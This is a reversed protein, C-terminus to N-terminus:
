KHGLSIRIPIAEIHGIVAIRFKTEWAAGDGADRLIHQAGAIAEIHQVINDCGSKEFGARFQGIGDCGESPVLHDGDERGRLVSPLVGGEGHSIREGEGFEGVRAVIEVLDPVVRREDGIHFVREGDRRDIGILQLEMHAAARLLDGPRGEEDRFFGEQFVVEEM